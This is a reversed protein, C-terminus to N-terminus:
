KTLLEGVSNRHLAEGRVNVGTIADDIDGHNRQRSRKLAAVVRAKCIGAPL